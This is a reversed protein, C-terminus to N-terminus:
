SLSNVVARRSAGERVVSGLLPAVVVVVTAVAVGVGAGARVGAVVLLVALTTGGAVTRGFVVVVVGGTLVARVPVVVVVVGDVWRALCIPPLGVSAIVPVPVAGAVVVGVVV